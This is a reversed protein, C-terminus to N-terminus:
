VSIKKTIGDSNKVGSNNTGTDTAPASSSALKMSSHNGKDNSSSDLKVSQQYMVGGMICALLFILGLPSAHFQWVTYNIVVTGIKNVVGLVTFTTASLEKRCAMAFFSIMVGFVCSVAVPFFVSNWISTLSSTVTYADSSYDNEIGNKLTFLEAIIELTGTRVETSSNSRPQQTFLAGVPFFMLALLNNYYVLGWSSLKVASVVKKVVVMDATIAILYMSGWFYSTLTIGGREVFVYSIASAAIFVLSLYTNLSPGKKNNTDNNTIFFTELPLVFLPTVSRFVIFTDVTAYQLLKTNCFISVYFLVVAPLFSYVKKWQLKECEICYFLRASIFVFLASVSFQLATLQAAYPWQLM